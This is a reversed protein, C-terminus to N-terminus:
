DQRRGAAEECQSALLPRTGYWRRVCCDACCTFSPVTRINSRMLATYPGVAGPGGVASM